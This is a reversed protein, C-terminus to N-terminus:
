IARKILDNTGAKIMRLQALTERMKEAATAADEAVEAVAGSRRTQMGETAEDDPLSALFSECAFKQAAGVRM